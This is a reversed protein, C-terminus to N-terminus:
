AGIFDSNSTGMKVRVNGVYYYQNSTGAQGMGFSLLRINNVGTSDYKRTFHGGMNYYNQLTGAGDSHQWNTYDNLLVGGMTYLRPYWRYRTTDLWHMIYEYRYFTDRTLSRRAGGNMAYWPFLPGSLPGSGNWASQQQGWSSRHRWNGNSEGSTDIGTHVLEISGVPWHCHPHMKTNTQGTGNCVYYKVVWYQGASPAPFLNPFEVHGCFQNSRISLVNPTRNWSIGRGALTGQSAVNLVSEWGGGTCWRPTIAKGGDTVATVSNGTATSWDLELLFDGSPALTASLNANTGTFAFSGGNAAIMRNPMVRELEASTGVMALSGSEAILSRGARSLNADTGSLVFIGADGPVRLVPQGITLVFRRM